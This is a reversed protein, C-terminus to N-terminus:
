GISLLERHLTAEKFHSWAATASSSSLSFMARNARRGTGPTDCVSISFLSVYARVNKVRVKRGHSLIASRVRNQVPLDRKTVKAAHRYDTLGMRKVVAATAVVIVALAVRCKDM